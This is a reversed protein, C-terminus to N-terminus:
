VSRKNSARSVGSGADDQGWRRELPVDFEECLADWVRRPAEGDQLAQDGTRYGLTSLAQDKVLTPGLTAGFEGEVLAWFESMRVGAADCSRDSPLGQPVPPHAADDGSGALNDLHM